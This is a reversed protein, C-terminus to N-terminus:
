GPRLRRPNLDFLRTVTRATEEGSIPDITLRAKRAEALLEPDALAALFARRLTEVRDKPVGPPLVYPRYITSADHAAAQILARADETKHRSM